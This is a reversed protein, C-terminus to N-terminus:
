FSPDRYQDRYGIALGYSTPVLVWRGTKSNRVVERWKSDKKARFYTISAKTNPSFEYVENGTGGDGSVYQAYDQQIGIITVGKQEIVEVITAAYRDSGVLTTAGMGVVPTPQGIVQRSIMDNIM